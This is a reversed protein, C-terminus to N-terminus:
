RSQDHNMRERLIKMIEQDAPTNFRIQERAQEEGECQELLALIKDQARIDGALAEQQLQLLMAELKSVTKHEGGITIQVDEEMLAKIITRASKAGKPRGKPNGSQGPKYRTPKSGEGFGSGKKRKKKDTM